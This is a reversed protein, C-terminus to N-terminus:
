LQTVTSITDNIQIIATKTLKAGLINGKMYSAATAVIKYMNLIRYLM